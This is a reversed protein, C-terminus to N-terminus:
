ACTLILYASSLARRFGIRDAVAGGFVAMVWVAGGFIGSLGAAQSSPFALTTNLYLALTSFVAYYSLREFIESINAIWFPREFGTRIDAWSLM